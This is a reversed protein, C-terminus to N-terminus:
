RAEAVPKAPKGYAYEKLTRKIEAIARELQADEGRAFASLDELVEIDPEVGYGERFWTGDPNYMRFTPVTVVGGDVLPPAGSIGILGGWTRAGILPGLKKKRFYDPFADGGSGSWGNILMVKPGIHAAGPSQWHEGDRVAWLALLERDLIEVFRDPIQGGSNFREDIVLAKKHIQARFQRILENQGNIATNAVYIYGADGNTADEVKKRNSEIWALHRLRYEDSLTNVVVTKANLFTPASNYTLEVTKDALGQFFYAPEFRTSLPIGNVALIYDGEKIEVGPLALPSRAEADWPAARIIRGVKYYNGDASWNIGLYGVNKNLTKEEDGGSRYTHSANLEAIMEGLVFNVEERCTAGELMKAYRVKVADWDMGHMKEDYFFDREFRWADTLIQKWEQVPDLLMEMESVRLPKEFKQNEENKIVGWSGQKRVLIKKGDSSLVYDGVDELITKEERKEIDYYKLQSKSESDAGTNPDKIYLIKGGTSGLGLLNGPKVPLHVLRTEIGDFDIEVPKVGPAKDEKDKKSKDAKENKDAPTDDKKMEV